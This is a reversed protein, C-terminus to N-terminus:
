FPVNTILLPSTKYNLLVTTVEFIQGPAEETRLVQLDAM